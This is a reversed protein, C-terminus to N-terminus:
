APSAPAADDNVGDLLDATLQTLAEGDDILTAGLAQGITLGGDSLSMLNSDILDPFISPDEFDDASLITGAPRRCCLVAQDNLHAQLTEQSLSM